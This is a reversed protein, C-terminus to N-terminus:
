RGWLPAGLSASIRRAVQDGDLGPPSGSAFGASM